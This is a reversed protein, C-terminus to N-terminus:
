HSKFLILLEKGYIIRVRYVLKQNEDSEFQNGM